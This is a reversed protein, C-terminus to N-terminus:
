GARAFEYRLANINRAYLVADDIHARVIRWGYRQPADLLCAVIDGNDEDDLDVASEVLHGAMEGVIADRSMGIVTAGYFPTVNSM